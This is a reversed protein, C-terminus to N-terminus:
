LKCTWEEETRVVSDEGGAPNLTKITVEYIGNGALGDLVKTSDSCNATTEGETGGNQEAYTIEVEDCNGDISDWTVKLKTDSQAEVEFTSPEDAGLPFLYM